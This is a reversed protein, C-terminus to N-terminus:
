SSAGIQKRVLLSRKATSYLETMSAHKPLDSRAKGRYTGKEQLAADRTGFRL